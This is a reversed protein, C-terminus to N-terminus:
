YGSKVVFSCATSSPNDLDYQPATSYASGSPAQDGCGATTSGQSELSTFVGQDPRGDDMKTDVNWAEEAKLVGTPQGATTGAGFFFANGYSGAYYVSSTAAVAGLNMANWGANGLKSRPVNTGATMTTGAANTYTGEVLGAAALHIWFTSIENAGATTSSEILGDGDGNYSGWGFSSAKAFDGPIAFYKDRFASIATGYRQFETTVARLESARILSQGAIIGGTLLGLIVLVISLEVLSFAKKSLSSM